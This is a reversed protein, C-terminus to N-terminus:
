RIMDLILKQARVGDQSSVVADITGMGIEDILKLCKNFAAINAGTEEVAAERVPFTDFFVVGDYHYKKLYYVFEIAHSFNVSGFIMGGDMRSYGDNMHLGFLKRRSAALSLGFAPGDHKMLMHCFDLTVGVNERDIDGAMLLTTGVSDLMSFNRPEFPKYEISIKIDKAYDAIERFAEKIQSWKEEYPAQFPYDFGDFALWITLVSGGLERCVDAAEKTLDLARKRISEDP